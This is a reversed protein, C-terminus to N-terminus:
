QVSLWFNFPKVTTKRGSMSDTEEDIKRVFRVVSRPLYCYNSNVRLEEENVAVDDTNLQDKIALSIPCSHEGYGHRIAKKIYKKKVKILQKM